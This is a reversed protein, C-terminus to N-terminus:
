GSIWNWIEGFLGLYESTEPDIPSSDRVLTILMKHQGGRIINHHIEAVLWRGGMRREKDSGVNKNTINILEGPRLTLDGNLMIVAQQSKILMM